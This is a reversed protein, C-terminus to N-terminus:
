RSLTSNHYRDSDSVDEGFWEPPIFAEMAEESDFEVEVLELGSLDGEFIDLEAVLGESLPDTGLPILYRTKQLVRGEEKKRLTEYQSKTLPLEHEERVSLGEGKVTLIFTESGDEIIRRLRIVPSRSIYSQTIHKRRCNELGEPLSRVLYKKEIEM